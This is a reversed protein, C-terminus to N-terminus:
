IHPGLKSRMMGINVENVIKDELGKYKLEEKQSTLREILDHKRKRIQAMQILEKKESARLIQAGAQGM